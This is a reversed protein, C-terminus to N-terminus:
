ALDRSAKAMLEAIPLKRPCAAEAARSAARPLLDRVEPPLRNFEARARAPDEYAEAYMLYRMVDAIPAQGQVRPECHHACWGCYSDRSAAAAGAVQRLYAGALRPNHLAAATYLSLLSLNKMKLCAAAIQPNDWIAKVCAQEPTFGRTVFRGALSLEAASDTKVPGGGATKMATIGIGKEHCADMAEKMAPEHMLRYNYATMVGDIWDLTAAHALLPEMNAHTSFGFLKIKGAKKANEAWQAVEPSLEDTKKVGHLFYLDIYSTKMRALSQELLRTMGAADRDDSKTVLFIEKRDEPWKAFYKGVGEESNGGEYCDATDWYRVGWKFAQKLLLLNSPTDFMMGLSLMPVDVGTRGFPRKPVLTAPEVKETKAAAEGGLSVTPNLIGAAGAAGAMKLFNRRSKNSKSM